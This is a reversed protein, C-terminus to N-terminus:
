GCRDISNTAHDTSTPWGGNFRQGPSCSSSCILIGCTRSDWTLFTRQRMRRVSGFKYCSRMAKRDTEDISSIVGDKLRIIKDTQDAIPQEHTVCIITLVWTSTSWVCLNM